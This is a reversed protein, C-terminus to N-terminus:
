VRPYLLCSPAFSVFLYWTFLRDTMNLTITQTILQIQISKSTQLCLRM